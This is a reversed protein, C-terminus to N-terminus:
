RVGGIIHEKHIFYMNEHCRKENREGERAGLSFIRGLSRAYSRILKQAEELERWSVQEDNKTHTMVDERYMDPPMVVIIKGKDSPEIHIEGKWVRRLLKIKGLRQSKTLQSTNQRGDEDCNEKM